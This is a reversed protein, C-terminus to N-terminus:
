GYNIRFLLYGFRACEFDIDSTLEGRFVITESDYVAIVLELFNPRKDFVLRAIPSSLYIKVFKGEIFFEDERAIETFMSIGSFSNRFKLYIRTNDM